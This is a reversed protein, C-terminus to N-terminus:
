VLSIEPEIIEKIKSVGLEKLQKVEDLALYSVSETKFDIWDEVPCMCAITISKEGTSDFAAGDVETFVYVKNNYEFLSNQEVLIKLHKHLNLIDSIYWSPFRDELFDIGTNLYRVSADHIAKTTIKKFPNHESNSM